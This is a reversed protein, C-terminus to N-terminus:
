IYWVLIQKVEETTFGIEQLKKGSHELERIRHEKEDVEQVLHELQKQVSERKFEMLM